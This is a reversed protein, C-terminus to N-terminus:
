LFKLTLTFLLSIYLRATKRGNQTVNSQEKSLGPNLLWTRISMNESWKCQQQVRQRQQKEDTQKIKACEDTWGGLVRRAQGPWTVFCRSMLAEPERASGSLALESQSSPFKIDATEEKSQSPHLPIPLYYSTMEAREWKLHQEQGVFQVTRTRARQLVVANCAMQAPSAALVRECGIFSFPAVIGIKRKYM